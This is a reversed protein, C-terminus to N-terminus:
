RVSVENRSACLVRLLIPEEGAIAESGIWLQRNAEELIKMVWESQMSTTDSPHMILLDQHQPNKLYSAVGDGIRFSHSGAKIDLLYADCYSQFFAMTRTHVNECLSSGGGTSFAAVCADDKFIARLADRMEGSGNVANGLGSTNYKEFPAKMPTLLYTSLLLNGSQVAFDIQAGKEEYKEDLRMASFYFLLYIILAVIIMATYAAIDNINLIGRKQSRKM